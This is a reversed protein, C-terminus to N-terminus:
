KALQALDPAVATSRRIIAARQTAITARFGELQAGIAARDPSWARKQRSKDGQSPTSSQERKSRQSMLGRDADAYFRDRITDNLYDRTSPVGKPRGLVYDTTAAKESAMITTRISQGTGLRCVEARIMELADDEVHTDHGLKELVGRVERIVLDDEEFIIMEKLTRVVRNHNVGLVGLTHCAEARVARLKEFRAAWLLQDILADDYWGIEGLARLTHAKVRWCPDSILNILTPLVQAGSLRLTGAIMIAEIKVSVHDDKFCLLYAPLLQPTMLKLSRLMKIAALRRTSSGTRLQREIEDCIIKAEGAKGLAQAAALRVERNADEWMLFSLRHALDRSLRQHLRGVVLCGTVRGRWGESNLLVSVEAAVLPTRWSLAALLDIAKDTRSSDGGEEVLTSVLSRIVSDHCVGGLALCQVAAWCEPQSQSSLADLLVQEAKEVHMDLCYLALAACVRVRETDSLLLRCLEQMTRRGIALATEEQPPATPTARAMMVSAMIGCVQDANSLSLLNRMCVVESLDLSNLLVHWQQCWEEVVGFYKQGKTSVVPQTPHNTTPKCEDDPPQCTWKLEESDEAPQPLSTWRQVGRTYKRAVCPVACTDSCWEHPEQPFKEQLVKEFKSKNDLLITTDTCHPRHIPLAGSLFEVLFRTSTAPTSAPQQLQGKSKEDALSPAAERRERSTPAPTFTAASPPPPAPGQLGGLRQATASSLRLLTKAEWEESATAHFVDPRVSAVSPNATLTAKGEPTHLFSPRPATTVLKVDVPLSQSRPHCPVHRKLDGRCNHRGLPRLRGKRESLRSAGHLDMELAKKYGISQPCRSLVVEDDFKLTRCLETVDSSPILPERYPPGTFTCGYKQKTNGGRVGNHAKANM